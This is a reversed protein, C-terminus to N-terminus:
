KASLNKIYELVELPHEPPKVKDFVKLIERKGGLVFTVRQFGQYIRGMFRKEGYVGFKKGIAGDSDSLLTLTLKQKKCFAQKSKQDGGSIGIVRTELTKFKKQLKEFGQAELTCGPTNDKPYFFLIIYKAEVKSLNVREGHQDLLALSPAKKGVQIIEM